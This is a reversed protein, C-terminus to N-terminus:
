NAEANSKKYQAMGSRLDAHESSSLDPDSRIIKEALNRAELLLARDTVRAARLSSAYGSQSTGWVEGEGRLELDVEALEFGNSTEVMAQLRSIAEPQLDEESSFLLCYSQLDSRGVRGRFQHLQSLGFREAGEILMVTADPIDIGVEIVSTAVLVQINGLAFADLAREKEHSSLRGHLLGIEYDSFPGDRLRQFETEVSRVSQLIESDDVLPCIVFIKEGQDLRKRMFSYAEERQEPQVWHTEVPKRGPPLENITSVELDGYVTLALTRPIPTATMVLLHPNDSKKRLATRQNVGFRHQEDIVVLGLRPFEVGQEILAHTGIIIDAGGHSADNRVQAKRAETLSGTLLSVKVSRDLWSPTFLGEFITSEEGGGLLSSLTRLHQEALIETPAMLVTQYGSCVAALMAAFAVVTKGSGVDGQLLRLMPQQSNIDRLITDLVKKQDTTLEFGLASKYAQFHEALSLSPATGAQWEKRRLLVATQIELFEGLAVRQRASEGASVSKPKHITRIADGLESLGQNKKVWGPLPDPLLDAFHDVAYNVVKLISSKRLGETSPYISVIRGPSTQEGDSIVQWLPSDMQIHGRYHRIKGSVIVKVGPQLQKAIYNQNFWVVKLRGTDDSVEAQTGRPRGRRGRGFFMLSSKQVEGVVTQFGSSATLESIKRVDSLDQYRRPLLLAADGARIVGLRAFREASAPGIGPIETVPDTISLSKKENRKPTVIIGVGLASIATRLWKVRESQSLFRYGNKPLRQICRAFPHNLPIHRQEELEVLFHDLGNSLIGKESGENKLIREFLNGIKEADPIPDDSNDRETAINKAM